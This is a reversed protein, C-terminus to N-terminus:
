DDESNIWGNPINKLQILNRVSWRRDRPYHPPSCIASISDKNNELLDALIKSWDGSLCKLVFDDGSPDYSEIKFSFNTSYEMKWSYRFVGKNRWFHYRIYLYPLNMDVKALKWTIHVKNEKVDQIGSTLYNRTIGEKEVCRWLHEINSGYIEYLNKIFEPPEQDTLLHYKSLTIIRRRTKLNLYPRVMHTWFERLYGIGEM